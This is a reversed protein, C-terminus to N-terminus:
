FSISSALSLSMCYLCACNLFMVATSELFEMPPPLARISSTKRTQALSVWSSFSSFVSLSEMSLDFDLIPLSLAAWFSLACFAIILITAPLSSLKLLIAQCDQSDTCSSNLFFLSKSFSTFACSSLICSNRFRFLSSALPTSLLIAPELSVPSMWVANLMQASSNLVTLLPWASSSCIFLCLWFSAERLLRTLPLALATAPLVVSSSFIFVVMCTNMCQCLSAFSPRRM